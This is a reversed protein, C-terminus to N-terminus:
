EPSLRDEGSHFFIVSPYDERRYIIDLVVGKLHLLVSICSMAVVPAEPAHVDDWRLIPQVSAILSGGDPLPMWHDVGYHMLVNESIYIVLSILSSYKLLSLTANTEQIHLLHM